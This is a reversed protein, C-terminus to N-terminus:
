WSLNRPAVNDGVKSPKQCTAQSQVHIAVRWVVRGWKVVECTVLWMTRVRFQGLQGTSLGRSFGACLILEQLIWRNRMKSITGKDLSQVALSISSGGFHRTLDSIDLLYTEVALAAM